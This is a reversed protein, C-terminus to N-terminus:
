FAYGIRANFTRSSLDDGNQQSAFLELSVNDKRFGIGVTANAIYSGLEDQATFRYGGFSFNTDFETNTFYAVGLQVAPLVTYGDVSFYGNWNATARFVATHLTDDDYHVLGSGITNFDFGDQKIGLYGATVKIGFTQEDTIPVDLGVHAEAYYYTSDIDTQDSGIKDRANWDSSGIGGDIRVGTYVLDTLHYNLAAGMAFRTTDSQLNHDHSNSQEKATALYLAADLRGSRTDARLIVGGGDSDFGMSSSDRYDIYWPIVSVKWDEEPLRSPLTTLAQLSMLSNLEGTMAMYRSQHGLSKEPHVTAVATLHNIDDGTASLDVMGSASEVRDFFGNVYQTDSIFEGNEDYHGFLTGIEITTTLGDYNKPAIYLHSNPTFSLMGTTTQGDAVELAFPVLGETDSLNLLWDGIEIQGSGSISGLFQHKAEGAARSLDIRGMNSAFIKGNDVAQAAIGAVSYAEDTDFIMTGNNILSVTAEDSVGYLGAAFLQTNVTTAADVQSNIILSLTRDNPFDKEFEHINTSFDACSSDIVDFNTIISITGNNIAAAETAGNNSATIGMLGVYADFNAEALAVPSLRWTFSQYYPIGAQAMEEDSPTQNDSTMTMSASASVYGEIDSSLSITGNNIAQTGISALGIYSAIVASTREYVYALTLRNEIQHEQDWTETIIWNGFNNDAVESTNAIHVQSDLSVDLEVDSVQQLQITAQNVIPTGVSSQGIQLDTTPEVRDSDMFIIESSEPGFAQMNSWWYQYDQDQNWDYTMSFNQGFAVPSFTSCVILAVPLLKLEFGKM